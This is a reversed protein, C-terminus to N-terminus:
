GAEALGRYVAAVLALARYFQQQGGGMWLNQAYGIAMGRDLDVFSLSGGNGGWWAIRADAPVGTFIARNLSFGMGWDCPTGMVLDVGDSQRELLRERGRDSMMRKGGVGGCALASQLTAIARANAHVNVAGVEARRWGLEWSNVPKLHPNFLARDFYWNGSPQDNPRGQILLSVRGDASPPVGLYCEEGVGLPGALEDALYRGLSKGTVRRVVEGVLHGMNFGHYGSTRGPEWWPAQRALAATSKEWDCLDRRTTPETWGAVGSTFGLIQRVRIDGKGAAGFEPWYAAVPADLDLGGHDALHLACLATITKSSSYLHVITDREWPRSYTLDFYGGWLDIVPRGEIFVAFSAGVDANSDIHAAFRERVGAFREDCLGSVTTSSEQTWTVEADATPM